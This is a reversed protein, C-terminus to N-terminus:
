GFGGVRATRMKVKEWLGGNKQGWSGMYIDKYGSEEKPRKQMQERQPNKQFSEPRKSGWM